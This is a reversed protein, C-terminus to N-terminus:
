LGHEYGFVGSFARLPLIEQEEMTKQYEDVVANWLPSDFKDTSEPKKFQKKM